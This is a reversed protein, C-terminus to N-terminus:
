KESTNYGAKEAIAEKFRSYPREENPDFTIKEGNIVYVETADLDKLETDGDSTRRVIYHYNGGFDSAASYEDIMAEVKKLYEDKM